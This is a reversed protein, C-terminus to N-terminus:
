LRAKEIAKETLFFSKAKAKWISGFADGLEDFEFLSIIGESELANIMGQLENRFMSCRSENNAGLMLDLAEFFREKTVPKVNLQEVLKHAKSQM